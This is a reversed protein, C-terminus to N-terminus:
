ISTVIIQASIDILLDIRVDLIITCTTRGKLLKVSVKSITPGFQCLQCQDESDSHFGMSVCLSRWQLMDLKVTNEVFVLSFRCESCCHNFSFLVLNFGVWWKFPWRCSRHSARITIGCYLNRIKSPLSQAGPPVRYNTTDESSRSSCPQQQESNAQLSIGDWSSHIPFGPCKWQLVCSIRWTLWLAPVIRFWLASYSHTVLQHWSEKMPEEANVLQTNLSNRVISNPYSRDLTITSWHRLGVRYRLLRRCSETSLCDSKQTAVRPGSGTSTRPSFLWPYSHRIQQAVGNYNHVDQCDLSDSESNLDRTHYLPFYQRVDYQHTSYLQAMRNLTKAHLDLTRLIHM